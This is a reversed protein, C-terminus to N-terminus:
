LTQEELEAFWTELLDGSDEVLWNIYFKALTPLDRAVLM